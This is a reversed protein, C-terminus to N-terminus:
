AVHLWVMLLHFVGLVLDACLLALAVFVAAPNVLTGQNRAISIYVAVYLL